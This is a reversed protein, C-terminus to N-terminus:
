PRVDKLIVAKMPKGDRKFQTVSVRGRYDETYITRRGNDHVITIQERTADFESRIRNITSM